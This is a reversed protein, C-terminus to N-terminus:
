EHSGAGGALEALMTRAQEAEPFTGAALAKELSGAAQQPQGRSQQVLALHYHITPVGPLLSAARSLFKGAEDHRGNRFLAYGLTDMVVPNGPELRYAKLALDLAEGHRGSQVCLYALNNLAPVFDPELGIIQRYYKEAQDKKGLKEQLSGLAFLAPLHRPQDKLLDRYGGLAAEYRGTKEQLQAWRQRLPADNRVKGTGSRLVGLARDPIGQHEYVTAMLLYGSPNDPAAALVAQALEAARRTEGAALLASLLQPNGRGPRAIELREFVKAAAAHDGGSLLIRGLFELMEPQERHRVLGEELTQRAAAADGRLQLYRAFGLYGPPEGTAAGRRYFNLAVNPDELWEAAHGAALLAQLHVPHRQLLKEYEAIAQRQDGRALSLTALNFYPALYDPDLEQARRLCVIGEETRGLGFRAAALYNLLLADSRSGRLGGELLEAARAFDGRQLMQGALVVRTDMTDPAAELARTLSMEAQAAEGRALQYIGKKFHADALGPEIRIARDFNEMARDYLNKGMYASGLINFALANDADYRAATEAERIADDLRGQRLLTLAVMNRAPVSERQYDLVKQFHNLALELKGLHYYCLGVYFYAALGPQKELSRQFRSLAEEYKGAQFALYGQLQYGKELDPFREVLLAARRRVEELDGTEFRLLAIMYHATADDPHIRVLEGYLDLARDRSGQEYELNALHHLAVRHRPEDRLIEQLRARAEQLRGEQLYLEALNTKVTSNGPELDLAARFYGEARETDGKLRYSRGLIDLSAVNTQSAKGFNEMERIAQDPRNTRTYLEGFKLLLDPNGPDQKQVKLFEKEATEYRGSELYAIGLHYRAEYFNPDKDLASRFIVISGRINGEDRQRIGEHLLDEKTPNTCSVLLILSIVMMLFISQKKM